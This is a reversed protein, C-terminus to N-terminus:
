RSCDGSKQINEVFNQVNFFFIVFSFFFHIKQVIISKVASLPFIHGSSFRLM